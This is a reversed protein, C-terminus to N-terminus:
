LLPSGASALTQYCDLTEKTYVSWNYRNEVSPRAQARMAGLRQPDNLLQSAARTFSEVSTDKLILGSVDDLVVDPNSGIPTTIVPVGAYLSELIAMQPNMSLKRFPMITMLSRALLSEITVQGPYPFVYTEVNPIDRAMERLRQVLPPGPRVAFVFKRNPFLPALREFVDAAIDAGNGHDPNRWFLVTDPDPQAIDAFNRLIGPRAVAPWVPIRYPEGKKIMHPSPCLIRDLGRWARRRIRGRMWSSSSLHFDPTPTIVTKLRPRSRKVLWFLFAAADSGFGHLVDLNDERVWHRLALFQRFSGAFSHRRDKQSHQSHPLERVEMQDPFCSPLAFSPRLRTTYFVPHYGAERLIAATKIAFQAHGSVISDFDPSSFVERAYIGIRMRNPGSASLGQYM